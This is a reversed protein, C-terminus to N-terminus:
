WFNEPSAILSLNNKRKAKMFLPMRDKGKATEIGVKITSSRLKQNSLHLKIKITKKENQSISTLNLNTVIRKWKRNKEKVYLVLKEKEFYVPCTGDNTLTLTVYSTRSGGSFRAKSVRYRPGVYRLLDRSNKKATRNLKKEGPVMPGIFTMHSSRVLKKTIKYSSGMMKKMPTGSTFEGGVPAHNWIKAKAILTEGTQEFTGGHAIWSLWEKTDDPDGTMDNYVGAGRPLVSFTRRMLLKAKKFANTYAKVYAKQVKKNPFRPLTKDKKLIHWEGWHGLSGIEVYAAFGDKEAWSALASVAKKHAALLVRNSYDPCYGKGYANDYDTGDATKKYLWNPIDRHAKNAPRDLVLRLVMHKGQAKWKKIHYKKEISSFDFVNEKPEIEKLTVEVYVLSANKCLSESRGDPAYGSYPVQLVEDTASFSLTKSMSFAKEKPFLLYILVIAAITLLPIIRSWSTKTM